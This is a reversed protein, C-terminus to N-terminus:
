PYVLRFFVNTEGAAVPLVVRNTKTSEPWTFWRGPATAGAANTQLRWGTHEEPWALTLAGSDAHHALNPPTTAIARSYGVGDYWTRNASGASSPKDDLFVAIAGGNDATAIGVEAALLLRNGESFLTPPTLYELSVAGLAPTAGLSTAADAHSFLPNGGAGPTLGARLCWHETAGTADWFFAYIKYSQGPPLGTILTRLEPANESAEGSAEFVNGDSAFVTREEWNNDAGTTGNLPPSFTGGDALTTNGGVGATANVFTIPPNPPTGPGEPIASTFLGAVSCNYSTYTSYTGRFWLVCAEGGYRRPVYPRLNNVASNSTVQSWAFTLGGDATVGRWLEYRENPRLPVNTTDALNFPDQANSSIYIVSSDVPDVCVGGAYDDESTYLPRGAHAIFRRQWASGTWRAYYYYIRDDFWNTGMVADRQVTFVCVPDSNTQYATEWCWARGTPIWEDPNAQPEANYQYIVSGREGSDHLLPLDPYDKVRVGDTQYFAGDRYYLHYLSNNQNRPHGDTYLFDVRNTYNSAYKVYPRTGGTGTRIFWQPASWTAGGDTSTYVTPNFNLNRCFNYIKGGESWLQFPNAYTMSAGSAPILVEPTWDAPTAPDNTTSNRYAFFQDSGHRSYIALLGGDEKALLGPNNHDDLQTFGSVWLDTVRGTALDFVSLGSKGGAATVYGFYLKGRHFIARPDNYWTWAGETRLVVFNTQAMSSWAISVMFLLGFLRGMVTKPFAFGGAPIRMICRTRPTRPDGVAAEPM